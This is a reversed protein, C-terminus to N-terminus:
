RYDVAHDGQLSIKPKSKPEQILSTARKAVQPCSIDRNGIETAPGSSATHTSGAVLLAQQGLSLCRGPLAGHHSNHITCGGSSWTHGLDQPPPFCQAQSVTYKHLNAKYVTYLCLNAHKHRFLIFCSCSNTLLHTLAWQCTRLLSQGPQLAGTQPLCSHSTKPQPVRWGRIGVQFRTGPSM